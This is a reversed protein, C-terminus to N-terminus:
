GEPLLTEIKPEISINDTVKRECSLRALETDTLTQLMEKNPEEKVIIYDQMGTSKLAKLCATKSLVKVSKSVRLSITGHSLERSRVQVFEHKNQLVHAEISHEIEQLETLVPAAKADFTATIASIQETKKNELDRKQVTLEGLRQLAGNVEEWGSYSTHTPETTKKM